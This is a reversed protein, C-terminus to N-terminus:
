VERLPIEFQVSTGAGPASTIQVTGHLERIREQLMTLGYHGDNQVSGTAFGVGDDTVAIDLRDAYWRLALRVHHAHAHKRVNNLSEHILGYVHQCTL